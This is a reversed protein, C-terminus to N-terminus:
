AFHSSFCRARTLSFELVLLVIISIWSIIPILRAESILNLIAYLVRHATIVARQVTSRFSPYNPRRSLVQLINETNMRAERRIRLVPVVLFSSRQQLPAIKVEASDLLSKERSWSSRPRTRKEEVLKIEYHKSIKAQKLACKLGATVFM